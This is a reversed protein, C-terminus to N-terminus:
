RSWSPVFPVFSCSSSCSKVSSKEEDRRATRCRQFEDATGGAAASGAHLEVAPRSPCVRAARHVQDGSCDCRGRRFGSAARLLLEGRYMVPYRKEREFTIGAETLEWGVAKSYINELLSPGLERHVAICCGITDRVLTEVEEPLPSAIRLMLGGEEEHRRTKTTANIEPTKGPQM